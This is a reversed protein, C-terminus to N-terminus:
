SRPEVARRIACVDAVLRDLDDLRIQCAGDCPAREPDPHTELFIRDAGTVGDCIATIAAAVEEPPADSTFGAFIAEFSYM